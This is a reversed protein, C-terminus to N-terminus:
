VEVYRPTKRTKVLGFTGMLGFGILGMAWTSPEPVGGMREGDLEEIMTQNPASVADSLWVFGTTNSFLASGGDASAILADVESKFGASATYDFSAGYETEWIAVQYEASVGQSAGQHDIANNGLFVLNDITLLDAADLGNPIGPKPLNALTAPNINFLYPKFLIDFVDMCWVEATGGPGTFTVRGALANISDPSNLQVATGYDSYDTMLFTDAKASAAGVAALLTSALLLKKM